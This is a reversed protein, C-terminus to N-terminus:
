HEVGVMGCLQKSQMGVSSIVSKCRGNLHHMVGEPPPVSRLGQVTCVGHEGAAIEPASRVSSHLLNNDEHCTFIYLRYFIPQRWLKCAFM